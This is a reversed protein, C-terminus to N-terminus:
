RTLERFFTRIDDVLLEPQEMAAFHGGRDFETWRVINSSREALARIPRIDYPFVAVGLPAPSPEPQRDKLPHSVEYYLRASSAATNTLWYLTIDTLM